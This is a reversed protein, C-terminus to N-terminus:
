SDKGEIANGALWLKKLRSMESGDEADGGRESGVDLRHGIRRNKMETSNRPDM